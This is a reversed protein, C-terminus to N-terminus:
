KAPFIKEMNQVQPDGQPTTEIWFSKSFRSSNQERSFTSCRIRWIQSDGASQRLEIQSREGAPQRPDHRLEVQSREGASQRPDSKTLTLRGGEVIKMVLERLL